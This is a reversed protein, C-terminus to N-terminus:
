NLDDDNTQENDDPEPDSQDDPDSTHATNEPESTTDESTSDRNNDTDADITPPWILTAMKKPIQAPDDLNWGPVNEVATSNSNADMAFPYPNFQLNDRDEEEVPAFISNHWRLSRYSENKNWKTMLVPIWDKDPENMDASELIPIIRCFTHMWPCLKLAEINFQELEKTNPIFENLRKKRRKELGKIIKEHPNERKKEKQDDLKFYYNEYYLLLPLLKKLVSLQGMRSHNENKLRPYPEIFRKEGFGCFFHRVDAISRGIPVFQTAGQMGQRELNMKYRRSKDDFQISGIMIGLFVETEIDMYRNQSILERPECLRTWVAKPWQFSHYSRYLDDVISILPLPVGDELTLIIMESGQYGSVEVNDDIEKIIDRATDVFDMPTIVMQTKRTSQHDGLFKSNYSLYPASTVFCKDIDIKLQETQKNGLSQYYHKLSPQVVLQTMGSEILCGVWQKISDDLRKAEIVQWLRMIPAIKGDSQKEGFGMKIIRTMEKVDPDPHVLQEAKQYFEGCFVNRSDDSPAKALDELEPRLGVTNNNEERSLMDIFARELTGKAAQATDAGIYKQQIEIFQIVEEQALKVRKLVEKIMGVIGRKIDHLTDSILNPDTHKVYEKLWENVCQDHLFYGKFRTWLPGKVSKIAYGPLDSLEKIHTLVEEAEVFLNNIKAESDLRNSGGLWDLHGQQRIMLKQCTQTFDDPTIMSDSLNDKIQVIQNKLEKVMFIMMKKTTQLGKEILLKELYDQFQEKAKRSQFLEQWNQFANDIHKIQGFCATNDKYDIGKRVLNVFEDVKRVGMFQGRVAKLMEVSFADFFNHSEWEFTTMIDESIDALQSEAAAKTTLLKTVYKEAQYFAAWRHIRPEGVSIKSLGFGGYHRAYERPQSKQTIKLMEPLVFMPRNAQYASLLRGQEREVMMLFLKDSAMQVADEAGILSHGKTSRKGIFYVWDFPRKGSFEDNATREIADKFPDWDPVFFETGQWGADFRFNKGLSLQYRELESLAAYSGAKTLTQPNIKKKQFVNPPEFSKQAKPDELIIDPLFLYLVIDDIEASGSTDIKKQQFLYRFFYALDLFTGSGTGGSTSCIFYIDIRSDTSDLVFMNNTKEWEPDSKQLNNLKILKNQISQTIGQKGELLALLFSLKGFARIGSAGDELVQAGMDKLSGDFWRIADKVEDTTYGQYLNTLAQRTCSLNIYNGKGGAGVPEFGVQRDLSDVVSKYMLTNPEKETDFVLYEIAPIDYFGFTEFYKRRLMHLTAKGFGGIGVFLTKKVPIPMQEVKGEFTEPLDM